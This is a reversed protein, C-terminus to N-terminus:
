GIHVYKEIDLSLSGSPSPMPSGVWHRVPFDWHHYLLAIAVTLVVSAGLNLASVTRVHGVALLTYHPVVNLAWVAFAVALVALVNHGQNASAAGMWLTLIPKSLM